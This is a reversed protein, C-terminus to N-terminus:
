SEASGSQATMAAVVIRAATLVHQERAKRAKKGDRQKLAALLDYKEEVSQRARGPQRLSISRLRRLRGRLSQLYETLMKNGAAQLLKEHFADVIDLMRSLQGRQEAASLQELMGVLEKLDQDTAYQACRQAAWGELVARIEYLERAEEASIAAVTPGRYPANEILGEAELQRLAERVLTRSVGLLDCLERETLRAGPAFQGDILAQRLKEVVQTRLSAVPRSVSMTRKLREFSEM